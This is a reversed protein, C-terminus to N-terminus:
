GDFGIWLCAICTWPSPSFFFGGPVGVGCGFSVSVSVSVGFSM